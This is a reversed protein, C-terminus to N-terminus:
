SNSKQADLNALIMELAKSAESEKGRPIRIFYEYCRYGDNQRESVAVLFLKNELREIRMPKARSSQSFYILRRRWYAHTLGIVAVDKYNADFSTEPLLIKLVIVIALFGIGVAPFVLWIGEIGRIVPWIAAFVAIGVGLLYLISDPIVEWKKEILARPQALSERRSIPWFALYKGQEFGDLIPSENRSSVVKLIICTLLGLIALVVNYRPSENAWLAVVLASAFFLMTALASIRIVVPTYTRLKIPLRDKM